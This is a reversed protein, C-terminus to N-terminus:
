GCADVDRWKAVTDDIAQTGDTGFTVEFTRNDIEACGGDKEVADWSGRTYKYQPPAGETFPLTITWHTADVRTMPTAGPDWDQFDGAIFVTDSAPTGDPVSVTFTVAVERTEAAATVRAAASSNFSTDQAVVEYIYAQGGAVSDDTFTPETPAGVAV